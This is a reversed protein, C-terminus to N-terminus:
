IQRLGFVRLVLRQRLPSLASTRLDQLSGRDAGAAVTQAMSQSQLTMESALYM